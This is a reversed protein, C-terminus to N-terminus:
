MSKEASVLKAAVFPSGYWFRWGLNRQRVNVMGRADM